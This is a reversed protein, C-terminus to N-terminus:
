HGLSKCFGCHNCRVTPEIICEGDTSAVVAFMGHSAHGGPSAVPAGAASIAPVDRARDGAGHRAIADRIMDRLEQESIQM